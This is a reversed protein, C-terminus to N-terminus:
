VDPGNWADFPICFHYSDNKKRFEERVELIENRIKIADDMTMTGNMRQVDELIMEILEVPLKRRLGGTSEKRMMAASSQSSWSSISSSAHRHRMKSHGSWRQSGYGDVGVVEDYVAKRIWEEQQPPVGETSLIPSVDPDVVYFSVVRRFGEKSKDKLEFPELRHQYINPFVVSKNPYLPISGIYQHCPDGDNFGWTRLTAGVDGPEFGRPYTVAMRFSMTNSTINEAASCYFGCAVIRENRMGEVHWPTGPFSPGGPYLRTESVNVIIQLKRDKLSVIHKRAELGGQYGEEPIDPLVLPRNMVWQRMDREYNVWGEEDDSYEPPDPEEWVTYKCSGPIRQTLPNHRHLDTLTHEFLPIFGTLITELSRYLSSHEEPHLNNIYSLFRAQGSPSISVDSPLLSFKSSVTYIDSPPSPLSHPHRRQYRVLTRNYVLPHLLPDVLAITTGNESREPKDMARRLYDLEHQLRSFTADDLLSTHEWIREFCSLQCGDADRLAAYGQLEDLVYNIQNTSLTIGVHDGSPKRVRWVRGTALKEWSARINKNEYLKWWNPKRRLEASYLSM